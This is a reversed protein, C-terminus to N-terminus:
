YQYEDNAIKMLLDSSDLIILANQDGESGYEATELIVKTKSNILYYRDPWARLTEALDNTWKDVYIEFPPRDTKVFDEAWYFRDDLSKQSERPPLGLYWDNSHAEDIYVYILTVRDKLKDALEYM